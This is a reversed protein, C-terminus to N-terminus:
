QFIVKSTFHALIAFCCCDQLESHDICSLDVTKHCTGWRRLPERHWRKALMEWRSQSLLLTQVHTIWPHKLLHFTPELASNLLIALLSLLFIPSIRVMCPHLFCCQESCVLFDYYVCCLTPIQCSGPVMLFCCVCVGASICVGTVSEIQGSANHLIWHFCCGAQPQNESIYGNENILAIINARFVQSCQFLISVFAETLM